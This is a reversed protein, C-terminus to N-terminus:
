EIRYVYATQSDPYLELTWLGTSPIQLNAGGYALPILSPFAGTGTFLIDEVLYAAGYSDHGLNVDWSHDQRFKFEDGEYLYIELYHFNYGEDYYLDHDVSWEEGNMSGIISWVDYDQGQNEEQNEFWMSWGETWPSIENSFELSSSVSDVVASGSYSTGGMVYVDNGSVTFVEGSETVVRIAARFSQSPLIASWAKSGGDLVVPLMKIDSTYGYDTYSNEYFAGRTTTSVGLLSVEKIPSGSIKNDVALIIRSFKHVFSLHVTGDIPASQTYAVMVDSARYASATSQDAKVGIPAMPDERYPDYPYYAAFMSTEEVYQFEDWFVPREPVVAGDVIDLRINNQVESPNYLFLGISGELGGNDAKVEFQGVSATFKIERNGVTEKVSDKVSCGVLATGTLIAAAIYTFVKRM